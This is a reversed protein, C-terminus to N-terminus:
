IANPYVLAALYSISAVATVTLQRLRSSHTSNASHALQNLMGSEGLSVRRSNPIARRVPNELVCGKAAFSKRERLEISVAALGLRYRPRRSAASEAHSSACEIPAASEVLAQRAAELWHQRLSVCVSCCSQQCM